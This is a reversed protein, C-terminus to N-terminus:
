KLLSYKSLILKKASSQSDKISTMFFDKRIDNLGNDDITSFNYPNLITYGKKKLKETSTKHNYFCYDNLTEEYSSGYKNEFYKDYYPRYKVGTEIDVTDISAVLSDDYENFSLKYDYNSYVDRTLCYCGTCVLIGNSSAIEFNKLLDKVLQWENDVSYLGADLKCLNLFEKVSYNSLLEKIKNRREVEDKLMKRLKILESKKM